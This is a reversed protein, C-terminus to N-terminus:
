FWCKNSNEKLWTEKEKYNPIAKKVLNWFDQSHNQFKLHALEHICVYDIVDDPAFLLRTSININGVSSCSGWNSVNYKLFVKGVNFNFNMKNLENIRNVIFSKNKSAIVRSLLVSICENKNDESLNASVKFHLVDGICRVSSTSNRELSIKLKYKDGKLNLVEGDQYTKSGKVRYVPKKDIIQNIAWSKLRLVEKSYDERSM